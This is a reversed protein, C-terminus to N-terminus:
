LFNLFKLHYFFLKMSNGLDKACLALQPCKGFRITISFHQNKSSLPCGSYESFFRKFCLRSGVFEIWVRRRTRSDFGPWMPTLRTSKGSLAM